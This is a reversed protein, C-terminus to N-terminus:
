IVGNKECWKRLMDYQAVTHGPRPIPASRYPRCLIGVANVPVGGRLGVLEPRRIRYLDDPLVSPLGQGERGYGSVLRAKAKRRRERARFSGSKCSM